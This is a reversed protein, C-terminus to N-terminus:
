FMYTCFFQFISTSGIFNYCLKYKSKSLKINYWIWHHLEHLMM